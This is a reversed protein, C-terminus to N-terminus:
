GSINLEKEAGLEAPLGHCDWGFRREVRKGLMTQYRAVTDKVFGTLLHGYHPLGNAFPPGDYFIFSNDVPRIDISKQFVNEKQWFEL